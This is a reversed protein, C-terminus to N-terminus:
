QRLHRSLKPRLQHWRNMVATAPLGWESALANVAAYTGRSKIIEVDREQSFRSNPELPSTIVEQERPPPSPAPPKKIAAARGPPKPGLGLRKARRSVSGENVGLMEAMRANSIGSKWLQRLRDDDIRNPMVDPM